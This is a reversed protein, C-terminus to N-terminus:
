KLLKLDDKNMVMVWPIELMHAYFYVLCCNPFQSLQSNVSSQLSPSLVGIYSPDLIFGKLGRKPYPRIGVNRKLSFRELTFYIAKKFSALIHKKNKNANLIEKRLRELDEQQIELASRLEYPVSGNHNLEKKPTFSQSKCDKEGPSEQLENNPKKLVKPVIKDLLEQIKM